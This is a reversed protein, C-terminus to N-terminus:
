PKLSQAKLTVTQKEGLSLADSGLAVTYSGAAVKWEHAQADFDALLRPDVSVSVTKKEGPKLDVRGFGLLRTRNGQPGSVLYVQGVDQGARKGTNSVTFSIKMAEGAKTSASAKLGGQAFTTYSLGYGFPFLPSLGKAAYWRYGVDSKEPYHADILKTRDREYFGALVPSPLQSEDKPFTIPLHGSPNVDGFLVNAIAQGGRTGPYWAEVVGAVKDLWPMAVPGGTELVVITNPNATAVAAIVADQGQPLSLDPVDQGEINWQTAFVIAIDAGKAAAVSESVYRGDAFFVNDKGAKDEIAKLPADPQYIADSIHVLEGTGGIHVFAGNKYDHNPGDAALVQSSGGGSLVGVDALGGIVAIRKGKAFPLVDGRNKLLVIGQEAVTRTIDAHAQFDIPGTPAKVDFVGTAFLSRLIRRVMDSVRAAPIQGGEVAAKLPKDFFVEKDIQEGSQQDLGNTVASLAPTAGWDSMVWGPYAWDGKLVKNLLFDSDCAWPGNVRNYSCMVSGPKGAEIAFQFALLDSERLPAEDIVASVARRSSEQSNIAFHKVTAVIHQDQTGRIAQGALTGALLPDEGLYEFNRGNRAERTLNVGGGLLVNFGKRTAEDGVMAGGQYALEPSWTAAIALGAPLGTAGDPRLRHPTAVGLSADTERLAPIGLRPVGPIYGASWVVGDPLGEIKYPLAMIGHLMGIREDLTLQSELLRAREDPSLKTNMWPGPVSPTPPVAAATARASMEAELAIQAHAPSTLAGGIMLASLAAGAALRRTFARPTSPLCSGFPAHPM